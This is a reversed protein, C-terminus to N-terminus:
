GKIAGILIGKAFYRQLFPYVLIIPLTTIVTITVQISVPTLKVAATGRAFDLTSMNSLAQSSNLYQYLIMQMTQLKPENVLMLNDFWSSWQGVSSFVAITAIIPMSIPFIISRFTRFYGAGDIKASESLSAPLQEMYTKLLIVYFASVASPIVYLLFSNKLGLGRMTLYWPILGASFYMTVVMFRYVWKRLLMAKDTLLYAFFSCCFVTLLTGLLTRSLSIFFAWPIDNMRLILRYNELTFGSPWFTLGRMAAAPDSISYIFVYYFPYACCFTFISIFTVNVVRFVWDLIKSPKTKL